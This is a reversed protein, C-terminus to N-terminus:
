DPQHPVPIYATRFRLQLGKFKKKAKGTLKVTLKHRRSDLSSPKFGLEYRLHLQELIEKLGGAYTDPTTRLYQGGTNTSIARSQM